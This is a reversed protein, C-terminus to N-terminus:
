DFRLMPLVVRQSTLALSHHFFAVLKGRCGALQDAAVSLCSGLQDLGLRMHVFLQMSLAGSHISLPFLKVLLASGNSLFSVALRNQSSGNDFCPRQQAAQCWQYQHRICEALKTLGIAM